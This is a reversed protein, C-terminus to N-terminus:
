LGANYGEAYSERSPTFAPAREPSKKHSLVARLSAGELLSVPIHDKTRRAEENAKNMGEQDYTFKKMGVKPM